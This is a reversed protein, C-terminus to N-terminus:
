ASVIFETTIKNTFVKSLKKTFENIEKDSLSRFMGTYQTSNSCGSNVNHLYAVDDNFAATDVSAAIEAAATEKIASIAEVFKPIDLSATYYIKEKTVQIENVIAAILNRKQQQTGFHFITQWALVFDELKSKDIEDMDDTSKLNELEALEKEKIALKAAAQGYVEKVQEESFFVDDGSLIQMLMMNANNKAKMAKEMDAKIDQIKSKINETSSKAKEVITEIANTQIMESTQKYLEDIIKKELQDIRYTAKKAGCAKVGQKLRTQCRYIGYPEKKVTRKSDAWDSCTSYTMHGGCECKLVGVLLGKGTASKSPMRGGFMNPKVKSAKLKQAKEWLDAGVLDYEKWYRDSIHGTGNAKQYAGFEGEVVKTKGYSLFGKYVTNSLIKSIAHSSWNRGTKSKIEKENLHSSIKTYGYGHNVYLNYIEKVVDAEEPIVKLMNSIDPHNEFGYPANGGTWLGEEHILQMAAEVRIKTDESAKKAAWFEIFNTIEDTSGDNKFEVAKDVVWIRCYRLFKVAMDLSEHSRRGFRDLKFLILIDYEGRKASEFADQLGKRKSTHTHFGSVGAEVFELDTLEWEIGKNKEPQQAVFNHIMKKQEPLSDEIQIPRASAKGSSAQKKKKGASTQKNTSGRMLTAIRLTKTM